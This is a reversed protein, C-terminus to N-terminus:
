LGNEVEEVSDELWAMLADRPIRILRGLRVSPIAGTRVLEYCASRGIRLFAATEAVTLVPPLGLRNSREKNQEYGPVSASRNVEPLM